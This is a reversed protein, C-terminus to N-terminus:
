PFSTAWRIIGVEFTKKPFFLGRRPSSSLPSLIKLFLKILKKRKPCLHLNFFRQFLLFLQFKKKFDLPCGVFHFFDEL